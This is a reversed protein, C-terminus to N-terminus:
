RSRKNNIDYLFDAVVAVGRYISLRKDVNRGNGNGDGDGDGVWIM